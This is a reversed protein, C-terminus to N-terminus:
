GGPEKEKPIFKLTARYVVFMLPLFACLGAGFFDAVGVTLVVAAILLYYLLEKREVKM